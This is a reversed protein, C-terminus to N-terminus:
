VCPGENIQGSQFVSNLAVILGYKEKREKKKKKAACLCTKLIQKHWLSSKLVGQVIHVTKLIHLWLHFNISRM